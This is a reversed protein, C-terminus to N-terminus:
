FYRRRPSRLIKTAKRRAKKIIERGNLISNGDSLGSFEGRRFHDFTHHFGHQLIEVEGKLVKGKLYNILSPNDAISYSLGTIRERPPACPDDIGSQCPIVSLSVKFGENWAESYISELMKTNTFFNTDDDRLLIPLNGSPGLLPKITMPAGENLTYRM